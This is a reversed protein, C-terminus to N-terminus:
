PTAISHPAATGCPTAATMDRTDAAASQPAAAIM